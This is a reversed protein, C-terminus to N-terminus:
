REDTEDLGILANICDITVIQCDGILGGERCEKRIRRLLKDRKLIRKKYEIAVSELTARDMYSYALLETTMTTVRWGVVEM